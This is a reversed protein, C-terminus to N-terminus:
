KKIKVIIDGIVKISNIGLTILAFISFLLWALVEIYSPALPVMFAYIFVGIIVLIILRSFVNHDGLWDKAKQAVPKDTAANLVKDKFDTAKEDLFEKTDM